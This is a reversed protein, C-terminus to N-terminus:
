SSGESSRNGAEEAEEEEAEGEEKKSLSEDMVPLSFFLRREANTEELSWEKAMCLM